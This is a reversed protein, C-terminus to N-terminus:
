FVGGTYKANPYYKLMSKWQVIFLDAFPYVLRGTLSKKNVRAFSEIYIIKSKNLKGILCFPYSLLAGTTIIVDPKESNLIKKSEVFLHFFEKIFGKEKRNIQPFTYLKYGKFDDAQSGKETVFFSANESIIKRLCLLEEWHGGSSSVFCIKM